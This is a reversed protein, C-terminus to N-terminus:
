TMQFALPVGEKRAVTSPARPRGAPALPRVRNLLGLPCRRWVTTVDYADLAGRAIRLSIGALEPQAHCLLTVFPSGNFLPARGSQNPLPGPHHRRGGCSHRSSMGHWPSSGDPVRHTLQVVPPVPVGAVTHGHASKSSNPVAIRGLDHLLAASGAAPGCAARALEAVARSYGSTWPSKLDAFFTIVLLAGGLGHEDLPLVPPAADLAADWPDQRDLAAGPGRRRPSPRDVRSRLRPRTARPRHMADSVGELRALVEFEQALQAIRMPRPIATGGIQNPVGRGNWREFSTALATRAAIDLGLRAGLADAVECATRYNYEVGKRGTAVATVV